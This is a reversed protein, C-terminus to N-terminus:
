AIRQTITSKRSISGESHTKTKSETKKTIGAATIQSGDINISGMSKVADYTLQAAYLANKLSAEMSLIGRTKAEDYDQIARNKQAEEYQIHIHDRKADYLSSESTLLDGQHDIQETLQTQRVTLIALISQLKDAVWASAATIEASEVDYRTKTLHRTAIDAFILAMDAELTVKEVAMMAKDVRAQIVQLEAEDIEIQTMILRVNAKAVNLEAKLVDIEVFNKNIGELDIRMDLEAIRVDAKEEAVEAKLLGLAVEEEQLTLAYERATMLLAQVDKIYTDVVILYANTVAQLAIIARENVAKSDTIAQENVIKANELGALENLQDEKIRMSDDAISIVTDVLNNNTNDFLREADSLPNAIGMYAIPNIGGWITGNRSKTRTKLDCTYM